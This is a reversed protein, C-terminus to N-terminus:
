AAQRRLAVIDQRPPAGFLRSYERSFQSPSGYGVAYAASEAHAGATLLRRAELLRLRKQYQLPTMGTFAKFRRHFASVSLGATKALERMPLPGAFRRRLEHIAAILGRSRGDGLAARAVASGHPGTLLWYCIERMISPALVPMANPQALLQVLRHACDALPGDFDVVFAACDLGAPPPPAPLAELVDRAIGLDLEIVLGLFPETRTAETVRGATPMEVSVLLAQGARYEMERAGFAAWKAGQLVACLAPKQIRHDM